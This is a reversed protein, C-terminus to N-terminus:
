SEESAGSIRVAEPLLKRLKDLCRQRTPGIGGMPMELTRSIEEYPWDDAILRLLSQCRASLQEFARWLLRDREDRLVIGEVDEDDVIAEFLEGESPVERAGRAGLRLSENRATTALWGAVADPNQLRDLNQALKLWVVQEVDECDAERLGQTRAMGRVLRAYRAVLHDWAAREGLRARAVLDAVEGM